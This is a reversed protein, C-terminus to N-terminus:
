ATRPKARREDQRVQDAAGWSRHWGLAARDVSQPGPLAWAALSAGAQGTELGAAVQRANGVRVEAAGWQLPPWARVRLGNHWPAAACLLQPALRQAPNRLRVTRRYHPVAQGVARVRGLRSHPGPRVAGSCLARSLGFESCQGFTAAGFDNTGTVKAAIEAMLSCIAPENDSRLVVTGNLGGSKLYSLFRLVVTPDQRGKGSVASGFAWRSGKQIAFLIPQLTDGAESSSLFSYDCEINPPDNEDAQRRFHPRDRGRARVCCSCWAQYPIHTLGHRQQEEPSPLTPCRPQRIVGVAESSAAPAQDPLADEVPM